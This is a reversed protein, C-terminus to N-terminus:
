RRWTIPLKEGTEEFSMFVGAEDHETAGRVLFGMALLTKSRRRQNPVPAKVVRRSCNPWRPPHTAIKYDLRLDNKHEAFDRMRFRWRRQHRDRFLKRLVADKELPM